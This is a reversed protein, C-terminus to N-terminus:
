IAESLQVLYDLHITSFGKEIQSITHGSHTLKIRTKTGVPMPADKNTFEEMVQSFSNDGGNRQILNRLKNQFFTLIDGEDN